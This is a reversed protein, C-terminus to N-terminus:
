STDMVGGNNKAAGSGKSFAEVIGELGRVEDARVRSGEVTGEVMDRTDVGRKELIRKSQSELYIKRERTMSDSEPSQRTNTPLATSALHPKLNSLLQRLYPLQSTTFSTHTALPTSCPATTTTSTAASSTSTQPLPQLGLTQAAPTHTLFAFTGESSPPNEAQSPSTSERKMQQTPQPQLLARLQAIQAENRAKEALLATHLKQTEVLKRRLKYLKEPTWNQGEPRTKSTDLGSYHGLRVWRALEEEGRPLCLVNRLTWIELKDFNKDVANEM